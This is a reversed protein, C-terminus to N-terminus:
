ALGQDVVCAIDAEQLVLYRQNGEWHEPFKLYDGEGFKIHDGVKSELPIRKGKIFKGPGVAVVIGETPLENHIAQILESARREIPKVLIRDRLPRLM